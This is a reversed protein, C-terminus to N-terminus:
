QGSNLTESLQVEQWQEPKIMGLFKIENGMRQFVVSVGEPKPFIGLGDRLNSTHGVFVANSPGTEVQQMRELLYRGLVESEERNKKISFQLRSDVEYRGFILKATDKCRCYPSSYVAGIPIGMKQIAEGVFKAEGRGKESLNRQKSCDSLDRDRAELETSAHRTYIIYGGSKLQEILESASLGASSVPEAQVSSCCFVCLLLMWSLSAYSKM